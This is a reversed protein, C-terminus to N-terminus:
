IKTDNADKKLNQITEGAKSIGYLAGLFLAFATWPLEKLVALPSPETFIAYNVWIILFNLMIFSGVRGWSVDGKESFLARVFDTRTIMMGFVIGLGLSTLPLALSLFNM